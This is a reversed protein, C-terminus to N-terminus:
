WPTGALRRAELHSAAVALDAAIHDARAKAADDQLRLVELSSSLGVSLRTQGVVLSEDALAERAQAAEAMRTAARAEQRAVFIGADIDRELAELRVEAIERALAADRVRLFPGALGDFTWTMGVSLSWANLSSLAATAGLFGVPALGALTEAHEWRAARLTEESAGIWPSALEEGPLPLPAAPTLTDIEQQLARGLRGRTIAVNAEAQAATAQAELLGLRASRGSLESELGAAVRAGTADSTAKAFREGEEAAALAAQAALAEYYLQAAAYQADLTTAEALRGSGRAQASQEAANFWAPPNLVGVGVSLSNADSVAGGAFTRRLALSPTVGLGAWAEAAAVRDQKWELSAVVADPNVQAARRVADDLTLASAHSLLIFIVPEGAGNAAELAVTGM